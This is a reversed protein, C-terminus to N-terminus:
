FKILVFIENNIWIDSIRCEQSYSHSVGGDCVDRLIIWVAAFLLLVRNITLNLIQILLLGYSPQWM